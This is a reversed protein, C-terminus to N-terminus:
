DQDGNPVEKYYDWNYFQAVKETRVNDDYYRRFVLGEGRANNDFVLHAVVEHDEHVTEDVGHVSTTRVLFKRLPPRRVGVKTNDEEM